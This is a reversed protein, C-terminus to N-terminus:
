ENPTNETDPYYSGISKAQRFPHIALFPLCLKFIAMQCLTILTSTHKSNSLLNGTWVYIKGERVARDEGVYLRVVDNRTYNIM